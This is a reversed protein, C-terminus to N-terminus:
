KNISLPRMKRKSKREKRPELFPPLLKEGLHNWRSMPILGQNPEIQQWNM